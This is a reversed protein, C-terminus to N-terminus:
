PITYAVPATAATPLGLAPGPMLLAVACATSGTPLCCISGFSTAGNRDLPWVYPYGTVLQNIVDALTIDIGYFWGGPFSM